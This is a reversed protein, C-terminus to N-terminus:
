DDPVLLKFAKKGYQGAYLRTGNKLTIWPRFVWRYGPPCSERYRV